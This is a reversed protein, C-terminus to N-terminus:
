TGIGYVRFCRLSSDDSSVALEEYESSDREAIIEGNVAATQPRPRWSLQTISRSPSSRSELTVVDRTAMDKSDVIWIQIRGTETGMAVVIAGGPLARLIDVATVPSEASTSAKATFGEESLNQSGVWLKVLKDRGATAFVRGAEVPAWAADLIMRSHGKPNSSLLKYQVEDEPDREFLAWQRDRGVSLLFRDDGSFRLRAVTLSHATLSPKIERWDKADYLRIVAHDISSARCATAVVRGNHSCAVASIEYGHGYLKESEPWLTHRALHEELPPQDTDLTSKHVVSAPDVADREGNVVEGGEEDDDQVQVAKNSLGLVPVNAAEPLSDDHLRKIHSLRELLVAVARPKDFVRLLKEDAGSIIQSDGVFDICNLDYGHIQPRALEHWTRKTDRKWEAFLRTTQDSSTSILYGGEPAWSLGTVEKVHGGIGIDQIWRYEDPDHHWVRWSGTRGLSVVSEGNPSWLGIWFGGSSGTATTAGKQGSIEGLRSTCVWVGSSVDPEWIALSNDASASLLQLTSGSRRWSATYIWDEHGLLLAEFTVSYSRDDVQFRHAKNSLAKGFSGLAPDTGAANAAPLEEGQHVRWLRIYKDQSASALILDSGNEEGERIFDLSRIWGEHGTLTARLSFETFPLSPDSVYIQVIAKTGAVALVLAGPDSPLAALALCLPFFRPTIAITQLLSVEARGSELSDIKWVKVTADAAGSVFLDSGPRVAISNISSEHGQLTASEVFHASDTTEQTWTKITKDVSGSLLVILGNSTYPLFKVVTVKDTHGCLLATIGHHSSDLPDWIAINRDTGFALLGSAHDWDAAAPHRNGGAAIFDIEARVM